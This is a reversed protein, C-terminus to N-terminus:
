MFVNGTEDTKVPTQLNSHVGAFGMEVSGAAISDATESEYDMGEPSEPPPELPDEIARLPTAFAASLALTLMVEVLIRVPPAGHRGLATRSASVTFVRGSSPITSPVPATKSAM